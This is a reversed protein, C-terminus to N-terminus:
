PEKRNLRRIHYAPDDLTTCQDILVPLLVVSTINDISDGVCLSGGLNKKKDLIFRVLKKRIVLDVKTVM